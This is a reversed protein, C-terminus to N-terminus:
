EGSMSGSLRTERMRSESWIETSDGVSTQPPRVRRSEGPWVRRVSSTPRIRPDAGRRRRGDCGSASGAAPTSNCSRGPERSTASGFTTRGALCCRISSEWWRKSTADQGLESLWAERGAAEIDAFSQGDVGPAGGNERCCEYARAPHGRGCRTTSSTFATAPRSKRKRVCCRQLKEAKAPPKLSM